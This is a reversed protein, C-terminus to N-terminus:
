EVAFETVIFRAKGPTAGAGHALGNCDGFVLGIRDSNALAWQWKEPHTKATMVMVSTWRDDIPAVLEGECSGELPAFRAFNGSYWRQGDTSFNRTGTANPVEFYFSVYSAQDPCGKGYIRTGPDAEVRFKMRFQRKGALPGFRCTIAHPEMGPDVIKGDTVVGGGMELMFGEPHPSPTPYDDGYGRSWNHETMTVPGIEWKSPDMLNTPSAPKAKDKKYSDKREMLFFAVLAAVIVAAIIYQEM